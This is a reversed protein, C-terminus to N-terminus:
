AIPDAANRSNDPIDDFPAGSAMLIDATLQMHDALRKVALDANRALCAEMIERHETAFDREVKAFPISLRRYREAQNFLQERLRLWWMSDCASLITEHFDIHAKAWAATAGVSRKGSFVPTHELQYHASLVRGEWALDGLAISQKLCRVEVDIRVMTLDALDDISIPSVIFGRQAETVVLADSTLRALAERIAGPSVDMSKAIREIGLKQRPLYVGDLIASKLTEYAEATRSKNGMM